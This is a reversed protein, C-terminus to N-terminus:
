FDSTQTFLVAKLYLTKNHASFTSQLGAPGAESQPRQTRYCSPLAATVTRMPFCGRVGMSPISHAATM